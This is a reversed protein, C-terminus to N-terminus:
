EDAQGEAAISDVVAGATNGATTALQVPVGGALLAVTVLASVIQRRRNGLMINGLGNLWKKM